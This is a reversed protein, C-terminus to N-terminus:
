NKKENSRNWLGLMNLRFIENMNRYTTKKEIEFQEIEAQIM